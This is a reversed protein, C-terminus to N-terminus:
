HHGGPLLCTQRARRRVCGRGRTAAAAPSLCKMFYTTFVEFSGVRLQRQQKFEQVQLLGEQHELFAPIKQAFASGWDTFAIGRGSQVFLTQDVERQLIGMSKSLGSHSIGLLEAAKRMNGTQFITHFQKLRNTEM